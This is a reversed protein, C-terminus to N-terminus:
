KQKFGLAALRDQLSPHTSFFDALSSSGQIGAQVPDFIYAERRVNEHPTQSYEAGYTEKNAASDNQIKILASALPKNDRLLQVCGADAMYERTRSLYLLLLINIM